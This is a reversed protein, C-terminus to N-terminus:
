VPIPSHHVVVSLRFVLSSLSRSSYWNSHTQIGPGPKNEFKVSASQLWHDNENTQNSIQFHQVTHILRQLSTREDVKDPFSELRVQFPNPKRTPSQSSIRKVLKRPRRGNFLSSNQSAMANAVGGITRATLWPAQITIHLHGSKCGSECRRVLIRALTKKM